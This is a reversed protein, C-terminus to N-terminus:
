WLELLIFYVYSPWIAPCCFQQLKDLSYNSIPKVMSGIWKTMEVKYVLRDVRGCSLPNMQTKLGKGGTAKPEFGSIVM